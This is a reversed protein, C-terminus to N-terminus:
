ITGFAKSIVGEYNDQLTDDKIEYYREGEILSLLENISGNDEHFEECELVSEAENNHNCKSHNYDLRGEYLTQSTCILFNEYNTLKKDDIIADFCAKIGKASTKDPYKKDFKEVCEIFWESTKKIEGDRYKKEEMLWERIKERNEYSDMIFSDVARFGNTIQAEAYGGEREFVVWSTM